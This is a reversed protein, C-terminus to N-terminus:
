LHYQTKVMERIEEFTKINEPPITHSQIHKEMWVIDYWRHFKYGCQACTGVQRYGLRQHFLMSDKTLHLDEETTDAICAYLNTINQLSLITELTQYLKKGIGMKKATKKVYISVEVAWQYACRERFLSAYTYGVIENDIEAVLYPYTQLTNSIRQEFEQVSPVTYEFTIATNEVYPMFILLAAADM